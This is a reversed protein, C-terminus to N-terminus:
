CRHLFWAIPIAEFIIVVTFFASTIVAVTALGEDHSERRQQRVRWALWAAGLAMAATLVTLAIVLWSTIRMGLLSPAPQVCGWEAIVYAGLLHLTWAVGGGLLGLLLTRNGHGTAHQPIPSAM